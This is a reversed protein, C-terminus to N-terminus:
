PRTAYSGCGRMDCIVSNRLLRDAVRADWRTPWEEPLYNTTIMTWKIARRSLLQCLADTTEGSRYKDSEAGIDDLFLVDADVSDQMVSAMPFGEIILRAKQPWNTWQIHPPFKWLGLEALSFCARRSFAMAGSMAHTKGCGSRGSVVLVRASKRQHTWGSCFQHVHQALGAVDENWIDLNLWQRIWNDALSKGPSPEDINTTTM